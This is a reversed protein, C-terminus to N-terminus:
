SVVLKEARWWEGDWVRVLYLGKPLHAVDIKHFHGTPQARYLLRGTPSYLEIHVQALPMNEPLQLWAQTTAPNPYLPFAKGSVPVQPASLGVPLQPQTAYLVGQRGGILGLGSEHFAISILDRGLNQEHLYWGIGDFYLVVGGEGAAWGSQHDLMKITTLDAITPSPLEYWYAGDYHLLLGGNGAAYATGDNFFSFDNIAHSPHEYQTIWEGDEYKLINGGMLPSVHWGALWGTQFDSFYMAAVMYTNPLAIEEVGEPSFGLMKVPEYQFLWAHNEDIAYMTGAIAFHDDEYVTNWSGDQYKYLRYAVEFLEPNLKDALAWGADPGFFRVYTFNFETEHLITSWTGDEYYQLGNLGTAAWIKGSDILDISYIPDHAIGNDTTWNDNAHQLVHGAETTVWAHGPQTADIATLRPGWWGMAHDKQWNGEIVKYIFHRDLLPMTQNHLVWGHNHVPFSLGYGPKAGNGATHWNTGDFEMFVRSGGLTYGCLWGSSPGTMQVDTFFNVNTTELFVSWNGSEYKYVKNIGVAWGEDTDYFHVAQLQTDDLTQQWEEGNFHLVAEGVAWGFHDNVFHVGYLSVNTNSNQQVWTDGNFYLITGEDGVAWAKDSALFSVGHLNLLVPSEMATWSAGNYKLIAGNNGVALGNNDHLMSIDNLGDLGTTPSILHWTQSFTVMVMSLIMSTFLAKM